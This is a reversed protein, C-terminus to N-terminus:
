MGKKHSSLKLCYLSGMIILIIMGTIFWLNNKYEGTKPLNNIGNNKETDSKITKSTKGSESNPIEEKTTTQKSSIENTNPINTKNAEVQKSIDSYLANLEDITKAKDLRDLFNNAQDQNLAGQKLWDNINAKINIYKESFSFSELSKNLEVQKSIDSYLANLEDITKAKDLRDLFNNAQDQNLAGQKLWDNINAKINIYKESFSFSEIENSDKTSTNATTSNQQEPMSQSSTTVDAVTSTTSLIFFLCAGMFIFLKKKM